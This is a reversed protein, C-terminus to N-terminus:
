ENIRINKLAVRLKVVVFISRQLSKKLCRSRRPTDSQDAPHIKIAKSELADKEMVAFAQPPDPESKLANKLWADPANAAVLLFDAKPAPKAIRLADVEYDRLM